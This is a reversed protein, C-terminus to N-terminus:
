RLTGVIKFSVTGLGASGSGAVVQVLNIEGFFSKDKPDAPNIFPQRVTFGQKVKQLRSVFNVVATNDVGTGDLSFGRGGKTIGSLWVEDPTALSLAALFPAPTDRTKTLKEITDVQKQLSTIKNKLDEIEKNEQKLKNLRTQLRSQEQQLSSITWSFYLYTAFMLGIVAVVTAGAFLGFQKLEKKRLLDRIPLLNIRVM